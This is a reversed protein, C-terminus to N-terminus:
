ARCFGRALGKTDETAKNTRWYTHWIRGPPCLTGWLWPKETEGACNQCVYISNETNTPHKAASCEFFPPYAWLSDEYITVPVGLPFTCFKQYEETIVVGGKKFRMKTISLLLTRGFETTGWLPVLVTAFGVSSPRVRSREIVLNRKKFFTPDDYGFLGLNKQSPQHGEVIFLFLTLGVGFPPLLNKKVGQKFLNVVAM